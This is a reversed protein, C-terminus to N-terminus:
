LKHAADLPTHEVDSDVDAFARRGVPPMDGHLQGLVIMPLEEDRAAKGVAKGHKGVDGHELVLTVVVVMGFGVTADGNLVRREADVPYDVGGLSHQRVLVETVDHEGVEVRGKIVGCVLILM